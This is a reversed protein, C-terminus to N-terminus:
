VMPHNAPWGACHAREHAMMAALFDGSYETSITIRCSNDFRRWICAGSGECEQRAAAPSVFVYDVRGGQEMALGAAAYRAPPALPFAAVGGMAAVQEATALNQTAMPACAALALAALALFPVLRRTM